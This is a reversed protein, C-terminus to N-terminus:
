RRPRKAEIEARVASWDKGETQGSRAREARQELEAAWARDADADPEGDISALLEAAVTARDAVPLRLAEEILPRAENSM